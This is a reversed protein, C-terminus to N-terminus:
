YVIEPNLWASWASSLSKSFSRLEITTAGYLDVAFEAVDNSRSLPESKWATHGDVMIEFTIPTQPHNNPGVGEPLFVGALGVLRKSGPPLKYIISPGKEHAMVTLARPWKEGRCTYPKGQFTGDKAFPFAMSNVSEEKLDALAIRKGRNEGQGSAQKIRKELRARDLGQMKSLVSGYVEAAHVLAAAKDAGREKEAWEWWADGVTVPSGATRRAALELAAVKALEADSGKALLPLGKAWDDAKFCLYKGADLCVEPDDPNAALKEMVVAREKAAKADDRISQQIRSVEAVTAINKTKRAFGSALALAKQALQVDGVATAKKAIGVATRALEDLLQPRAKAGLKTIADIRLDNADVEYLAASTDIAEFAVEMSGADAALRMAETLLAWREAANPTSGAQVLLRRALLVKKEPTTAAVYDDGFIDKVQALAPKVADTLPVPLRRVPLPRPAAAEAEFPLAPAAAPTPAPRPAAAEEKEAQELLVDLGQQAFATPVCAAALLGVALARRVVANM